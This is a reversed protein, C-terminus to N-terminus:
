TRRCLKHTFKPFTNLRFIVSHFNVLSPNRKLYYSLGATKGANKSEDSGAMTQEGSKHQIRLVAFVNGANSLRLFTEEDYFRGEGVFKASSGFDGFPFRRAVHLCEFASDGIASEATM